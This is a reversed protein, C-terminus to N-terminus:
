IGDTGGLYDDIVPSCPPPLLCGFRSCPMNGDAAWGQCQSPRGAPREGASGSSVSTIFCLRANQLQGQVSHSAREKRSFASATCCSPSAECSTLHWRGQPQFFSSRELGSCHGQPVALPLACRAPRWGKPVARERGARHLRARRDASSTESSQALSAM